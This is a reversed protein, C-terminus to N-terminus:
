KNSNNCNLVSHKVIEAKIKLNNELEALLEIGNLFKDMERLYGEM